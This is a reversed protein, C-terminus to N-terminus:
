PFFSEGRRRKWVEGTPFVIEENENLKAIVKEGSGDKQDFDIYIEDKNNAKGVLKTQIEWYRMTKGPYQFVDEPTVVKRGRCGKGKEFPVPDYGRLVGNKTIERPCGPHNPDAFSGSFREDFSSSSSALSEAPSFFLSCCCSVVLVAKETSERLSSARVVVSRNFEARRERRRTRSNGFRRSNTTTLAAGASTFSSATLMMRNFQFFTQRPIFFEDCRRMNDRRSMMKKQAFLLLLLLLMIRLLFTDLALPSLLSSLM